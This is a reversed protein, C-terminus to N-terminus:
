ALALLHKEMNTGTLKKKAKAHFSSWNSLKDRVKFTTRLIAVIIGNDLRNFNIRGLIIDLYAYEHKSVATSLMDVVEKMTVGDINKQYLLIFTPDIM